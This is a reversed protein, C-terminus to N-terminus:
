WPGTPPLSGHQSPQRLVARPRPRSLRDRGGPHARRGRDHLHDRPPRLRACGHGRQLKGLDYRRRSSRDPRSPAGDGLVSEFPRRGLCRGGHRVRPATGGGRVALDMGTEAAHRVVAAVDAEDPVARRCGPSPRDHRQLCDQGRRVGPGRPQHGPPSGLGCPMLTQAAMDNGEDPAARRCRAALM